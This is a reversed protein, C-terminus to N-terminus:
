SPAKAAKQTDRAQLSRGRFRNQLWSLGGKAGTEAMEEGNPLLGEVWQDEEGVALVTADGLGYAELTSVRQSFKSSVLFRSMWSSLM